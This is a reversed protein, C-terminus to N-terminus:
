DVYGLSRLQQKLEEAQEMGDPDSGTGANREARRRLNSVAERTGAPPKAVLNSRELPDAALDFVELRDPIVSSFEGVTAPNPTLIVKLAEERWAYRPAGYRVAESIVPRMEPETGARLADAMNQGRMDVGPPLGSLALLTPALDILSIPTQLRIGAPSGFHGVVQYM